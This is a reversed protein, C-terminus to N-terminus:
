ANKVILFVRAPQDGAQISHAIDAAYRATDGANLTNSASGSTVQVSGELVTLQENAGRTHPQSNLAGGAEFRIDYVEHGGAEEPPSLIQIRCGHGMNDISPVDTARLVEIKDAAEGDELLGAFDVQLARTLNWLTAITPSSEGREIQSVMSRSVGSLNAVAELSLGQARRAEKLRAPLRTLIDDANETM